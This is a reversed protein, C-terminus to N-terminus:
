SGPRMSEYDAPTLAFMLTTRLEGHHDRSDNRLTAEHVFGLRRAVAASRENLIDCRLALRNAGLVEFAFRAILGVAESVYGQGEATRRV